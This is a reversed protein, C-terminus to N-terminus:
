WLLEMHNRAFTKYDTAEEKTLWVVEFDVANSECDATEGEADCGLVLANGVIPVRWGRLQFGGVPEEEHILSEDDVFLFDGNEFRVPATFCKCGNGIAKYIDRFDASIEYTKIKQEKVDFFLAKM